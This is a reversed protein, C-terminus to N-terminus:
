DIKNITSTLAGNIHSINAIDVGNIESFGEIGEAAALVEWIGLDAPNSGTWSWSITQTGATAKLYYAGALDASSICDTYHTGVNPAYGGSTGGVVLYSVIMSGDATTTIDRSLATTSAADTNEGAYGTQDQKAGTFSIEFSGIAESLAVTMEINNAGLDPNILRFMRSGYQTGTTPTLLSAADGNFTITPVQASYANIMMLRNNGSVNHAAYILSTGTTNAKYTNDVFNPDVAIAM